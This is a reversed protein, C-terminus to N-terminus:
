MKLKLGISEVLSALDLAVSSKKVASYNLLATNISNTNLQQSVSGVEIHANVEKCLSTCLSLCGPARKRLVLKKASARGHNPVM